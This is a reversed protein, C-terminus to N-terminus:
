THDNVLDRHLMRMQVPKTFNIGKVCNRLAMKIIGLYEAQTENGANYIPHLPDSPIPSTIQIPNIPNKPLIQNKLNTPFIKFMHCM